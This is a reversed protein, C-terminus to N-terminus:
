LDLKMTGRAQCLNLTYILSRYNQKRTWGQRWELSSGSGLFSTRNFYVYICFLIYIILIFYSPANEWLSCVWTVANLDPLLFSGAGWLGRTSGELLWEGLTVRDQGRAGCITKTPKSRPMFSIMCSTRKQTQGKESLMVDALHVRIATHPQWEWLQTANWQTFLCCQTWEVRSPTKPQKWSPAIM